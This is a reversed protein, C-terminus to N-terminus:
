EEPKENMSVPGDDSSAANDVSEGEADLGLAVRRMAKFEAEDIQGSRRMAELAEMSFGANQEPDLAASKFKKRFIALAVGVAVIAAMLGAFWLLYLGYGAAAAPLVMWAAIWVM